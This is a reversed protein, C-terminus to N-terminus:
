ISLKYVDIHKKACEEWSFHLVRKDGKLILESRLNDDESLRLMASFIDDEDYELAREISEYKLDLVLEGKYNIYGYNMGNKDKQSVIYGTKDYANKPSCYGDASISSYNLSIIENGASDIIGYKDDKKVLISGPKYNLSSIEDYMAEVIINGDLDILGYLNDKKYKLIHNEIEVDENTSTVIEVDDFKSLIKQGKKNLVDANGDTSYCVFVDKRPNPIDIREYKTEIVNNGSKDIVGVTENSALVFYEYTLIDNSVSLVKKRKNKVKGCIVIITLVVILVIAIISVIIKLNNSGSIKNNRERNIASRSNRDSM